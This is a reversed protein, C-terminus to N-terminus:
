AEEPLLTGMKSFELNRVKVIFFHRAVSFCDQLLSFSQNVSRSVYRVLCLEDHSVAAQV